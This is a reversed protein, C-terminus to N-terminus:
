RAEEEAPVWAVVTTGRGPASEIDLTGNMLRVRERMSALGLSKRKTPDGADFGVGDDHIALLLGDDMQRLTVTVANAEAHRAANNLAEQAVRFLCLAAEKGVAAPLPDLEVSLEAKGWRGTRECEAQLAAALGIEELVAPHLQYALSHVDESIRVLAERVTRMVKAQEGDPAALEARGAEIALVALRQTVDDHLERALLAREEEHAHILRRSLDRREEEARKRETIDRLVGFTLITRGAADRRSVRSMQHLWKEGHTPHLFRYEMSVRDLRGDHLQQRQDLFQQRDDPHLHDIMFEVAALGHQAEPPIGCISRFRDDVFTTRESFNVEYFALGALDVGAALRAESERLAQDARRRALANAFVQAVLQLRKVLAAPWDREARLTNFALAGVPPEGGVSLPLCLDSKIGLRRANERDVAAEAPMEDVSPVVVPRGALLEQRVWPFLDQHLPEPPFLSGLALYAHTPQFVAPATMSWQWLVSFEIGLPECVRRLADEIERDVEDPPLNIFRSSLDSILTEFELRSELRDALPREKRPM